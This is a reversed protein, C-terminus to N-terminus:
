KTAFRSRAAPRIGSLCATITNPYKKYPSFQGSHYGSEGEAVRVDRLILFHHQLKAEPKESALITQLEIAFNKWGLDVSSSRLLTSSGLLTTIETSQYHEHFEIVLFNQPLLGPEILWLHNPKYDPIWENHLFHGLVNGVGSRVGTVIKTSSRGSPTCRVYSLIALKRPATRSRPPAQLREPVRNSIARFLDFFLLDL